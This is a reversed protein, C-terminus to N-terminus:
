SGLVMTFVWHLEQDGAFWWDMGSVRRHIRRVCARWVLWWWWFDGAWISCACPGHRGSRVFGVLLVLIPSSPSLPCFYCITSPSPFVLLISLFLFILSFLHVSFNRLSFLTGLSQKYVFSLSQKSCFRYKSSLLPLLSLAWCAGYNSLNRCVM